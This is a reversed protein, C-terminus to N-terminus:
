VEVGGTPCQYGTIPHGKGKNSVILLSYFFILRAFYVSTFLDTVFGREQVGHENLVFLDKDSLRNLIM